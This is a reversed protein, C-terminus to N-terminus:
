LILTIYHILMLIFNKIQKKKWLFGSYIYMQVTYINFEFVIFDMWDLLSRRGKNKSAIPDGTEVNNTPLHDVKFHTVIKYFQSLTHTHSHSHSHSLTYPHLLILIHTKHNKMPDINSNKEGVALKQYITSTASRRRSTDIGGGHGRGQPPGGHGDPYKWKTGLRCEKVLDYM